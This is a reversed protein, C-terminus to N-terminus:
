GKGGIRPPDLPLEGLGMSTGRQKKVANVRLHCMIARLRKKRSEM